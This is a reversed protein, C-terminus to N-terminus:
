YPIKFELFLQFRSVYLREKPWEKILSLEIRQNRSLLLNRTTSYSQQTLLTITRYLELRSFLKLSLSQRILIRTLTSYKYLISLRNVVIISSSYRLLGKISLSSTLRLILLSSAFRSMKYAM